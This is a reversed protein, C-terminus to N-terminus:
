ANDNRENIERILDADPFKPLKKLKKRTEQLKLLRKRHEPVINAKLYEDSFPRFTSTNEDMRGPRQADTEIRFLMDIERVENLLADLIGYLATLAEISVLIQYASSSEDIYAGIGKEHDYIHHHLIANRYARCQEIESFCGHICNISKEDLLTSRKLCEKLLQLKAKTSLARDTALRVWFPTKAFLIHSGIFDIHADIQTSKLAIAGMEALQDATYAKKPDFEIKAPRLSLETPARRKM